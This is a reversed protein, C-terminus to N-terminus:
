DRGAVAEGRAGVDPAAGRAALEPEATAQPAPAGRHPPPAGPQRDRVAQQAASANANRTRCSCLKPLSHGQSECSDSRQLLAPSALLVRRYSVLRAIRITTARKHATLVCIAGCQSLRRRTKQASNQNRRGTTWCRFAGAGHQRRRRPQVFFRLRRFRSLPLKALRRAQACVSVVHTYWRWCLSKSRLFVVCLAQVDSEM